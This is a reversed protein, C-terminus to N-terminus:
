KEGGPELKALFKERCQPSCFYYVKGQHTLSLANDPVLYVGCEPDQVMDTEPEAQPKKYRPSKKPKKIPQFFSKITFYIILLLLAILFLRGVKSRESNKM